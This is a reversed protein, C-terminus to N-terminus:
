RRLNRGLAMIVLGSFAWATSLVEPVPTAYFQVPLERYVSGQTFVELYGPPTAFDAFFPNAYAGSALTYGLGHTTLQGGPGPKLLNDVTFPENGPIAMGTPYLGTIEVEDRSGSISLVQYFGSSDATDSTTLTGAAAIGSGFYNWNWTLDARANM